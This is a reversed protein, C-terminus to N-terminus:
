GWCVVLMELGGADTDHIEDLASAGESAPLVTAPTVAFPWQQLSWRNSYRERLLTHWKLCM